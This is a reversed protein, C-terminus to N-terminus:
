CTRGQSFSTLCSIARELTCAYLLMYSRSKSMTRAGYSVSIASVDPDGPSRNLSPWPISVRLSLGSLSGCPLSRSFQLVISCDQSGGSWHQDAVKSGEVGSRKMKRMRQRNPIEEVSYPRFKM